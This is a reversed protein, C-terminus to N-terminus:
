GQVKRRGAGNKRNSGAHSCLYPKFPINAKVIKKMEKEIAALDEDTLKRDGLDVDYYFGTETAPGYAFTSRTCAQNGRWTHAASHRLVSLEEGKPCEEVNGNSYIIKM